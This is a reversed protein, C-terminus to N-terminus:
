SQRYLSAAHIASNGKDKDFGSKRLVDRAKAYSIDHAHAIAQIAFSARSMIHKSDTQSLHVFNKASGAPTTGFKLEHEGKQGYSTIGSMRSNAHTFRGKKDHYPNAKTLELRM